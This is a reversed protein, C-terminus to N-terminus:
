ISKRVEEFGFTDADIVGYMNDHIVHINGINSPLSGDSKLIIKFGPRLSYLVFLTLLVCFM